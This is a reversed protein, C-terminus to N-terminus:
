DLYKRRQAKAAEDSRLRAKAKSEITAEIMRVGSRKRRAKANLSDLDHPEGKEARAM